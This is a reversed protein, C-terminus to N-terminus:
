EQPMLGESEALSLREKVAREVRVLGVRFQNEAMEGVSRIRRNGLHDIDDVTGKGDRINILTKLVSIIDDNSLTGEGTSEDRGIRRNFKMRGVASLDYREDTFFLNQLLSQAAEKTPPEGPRMMRYIEVQAEQENTTPDVRLTDSMYPGHDLDNTYLVQFEAVSSEILKQLLEETIEDNANAIIEGSEVDIINKFLAKGVLFESPVLIETLKAKEMEKIHRATIRKNSEVIVNGKKDVIDFTLTQGRLRNPDLAIHWNEGDYSVSDTDFFMELIQETEYGLARLLISAALKRRRDIRVYVIDKADFEFDLWSGRYPIVRASYLLKGSSHTKGRDHDFFVGPSRHLQSVIVRETGNIVFTGNNTMLPIEGMYVEQEKIDKVSKSEPGADKDYIVLRLKVRLPAAYTMGRLQCEKVDFVPTGLRYNVYELAANGTYSVIPFVSKFAGHLGRELRGDPAAERQLFDRYSDLQIALLYPVDLVDPHKGFDKRIRKKETFSYAM